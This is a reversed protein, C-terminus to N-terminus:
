VAEVAIVEPIEQKLRAEIGMKLTISSSPCGECAGRLHVKVVGEDFGELLIVGEHHDLLVLIKQGERGIVGVRRVRHLWVRWQWSLPLVRM